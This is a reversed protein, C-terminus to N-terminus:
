HLRAKMALLPFFLLASDEDVNGGAGGQRLWALSAKNTDDVEGAKSSEVRGSEGRGSYHVQRTSTGGKMATIAM